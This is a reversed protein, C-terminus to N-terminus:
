EESFNWQFEYLSGLGLIQTFEDLATRSELLLAPDRLDDVRLTERYNRRVTDCLADYTDDTLLSGPNVSPLEDDTLAVRLRLCAPGGGNRMSQRLEFFHVGDIIGGGIVRELYNRVSDTEQCETPAILWTSGDPLAVLQTNFLYAKVADELPVEDATVCLARLGGGMAVDCEDIVQEADVFAQEHYFLVDLNGVSIVDNHFVGADIVDPAQQAFVTRARSLGHRRAIARSAELTQRAPFKKPFSGPEFASRGYVFLEAGSKGYAHTLRTHNAAGEDGLHPHAPLADHVCFRLEDPFTARLIASTAGHEISRHLKATLNATSLHVRGDATDASPSVTAANATWMASGSACHAFLAPASKAAEDIVETDTGCFGFERLTAVHPRDHPPLVGQVLGLDALAKMKALGQLAASRPQAVAGENRQSAVNGFSLGGYNHTPGVLGDFNAEIAM